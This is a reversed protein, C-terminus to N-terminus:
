QFCLIFVLYSFSFICFLLFASILHARLVRSLPCGFCQCGPRGRTVVEGYQEQFTRRVLNMLALLYFRCKEESCQLATVFDAMGFGNIIASLSKVINLATVSEAMDFRNANASLVQM